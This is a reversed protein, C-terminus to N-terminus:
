SAEGRLHHCVIPSLSDWEDKKPLHGMGQVIHLESGPIGNALAHAHEVPLLRDETGHIVLAPQGFQGLVDLEPWGFRLSAAMHRASADQRQPARAAGMELESDLWELDVDDLSNMLSALTERRPMAEGTGLFDPGIGADPDPSMAAIFVSSRVRSQHQRVLDATIMGGMSIAITHAAEIAADDLVHAIDNAMTSLTYEDGGDDSLGTDRPDMRIISLGAGLLGAILLQPFLDASDGRGPILIVPPGQGLHEWWLNVGDATTTFM